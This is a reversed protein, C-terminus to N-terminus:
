VWRVALAAGSLQAVIVRTRRSRHPDLARLDEAPMAGGVARCEAVRPKGSVPPGHLVNLWAASLREATLELLTVAALLRM